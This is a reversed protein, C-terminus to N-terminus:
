HDLKENSCGFVWTETPSTRLSSSLTLNMIEVMMMVMVLRVTSTWRDHSSWQTSWGSDLPSQRELIIMMMMMMMTMIIIMMMM